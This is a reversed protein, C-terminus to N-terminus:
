ITFKFEHCQLVKGLSGNLGSTIIYWPARVYYYWSIIRHIPERVINIFIPKKYQYENEDVLDSWKSLSQFREFDLFSIHKTYAAPLSLKPFLQMFM